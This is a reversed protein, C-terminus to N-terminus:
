PIINLYERTGNIVKFIKEGIVTGDNINKVFHYEVRVGDINFSQIGKKWVDQNFTEYGLEKAMKAYNGNPDKLVKLKDEVKQYNNLL